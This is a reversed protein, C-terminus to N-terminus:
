CDAVGTLFYGEVGLSAGDEPTLYLIDLSLHIRATFITCQLIKLVGSLISKTYSVIRKRYSWYIKSLQTLYRRQYHWKEVGTEFIGAQSDVLLRLM